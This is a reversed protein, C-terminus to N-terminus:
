RPDEPKRLKKYVKRAMCINVNGLPPLYIGPKMNAPDHWLVVYRDTLSNPLIKEYKEFFAKFSDAMKLMDPLGEKPIDLLLAYEEAKEPRIKWVVPAKRLLADGAWLVKPLTNREIYISEEYDQKVTRVTSQRGDRGEEQTGDVVISMFEDYKGEAAERIIREKDASIKDLVMRRVEWKGELFDAVREALVKAYAKKVREAILEDAERDTMCEAPLVPVNLIDEEKVDFYRILERMEEEEFIEELKRIQCVYEPVAPLNQIVPVICNRWRPGPGGFAAITEEPLLLRESRPEGDGPFFKGITEEIFAPFWIKQQEDMLEPLMYGKRPISLFTTDAEAAPVDKYFIEYPAYGARRGRYYKKDPSYDSYDGTRYPMKMLWVTKGSKVCLYVCRSPEYVQDLYEEKSVREYRMTNEQREDPFGYYWERFGDCVQRNTKEVAGFVIVSEKGCGAVADVLEKESSYKCIARGIEPREKSRKGIRVKHIKPPFCGEGEQYFTFADLLPDMISTLDMYDETQVSFGLSEIIVRYQEAKQAWLKKYLDKRFIEKLKRMARAQTDDGNAINELRVLLLPSVHEFTQELASMALFDTKRGGKVIKEMLNRCKWYLSRINERQGNVMAELHAGCCAYSADMIDYLLGAAKNIDPDMNFDWKGLHDEKGKAEILM